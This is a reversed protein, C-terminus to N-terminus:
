LTENTADTFQVQSVARRRRLNNVENKILFTILHKVKDTDTTIELEEFDFRNNAIVLMDDIFDQNTTEITITM